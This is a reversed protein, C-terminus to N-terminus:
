SEGGRWVGVAMFLWFRLVVAALERADARALAEALERQEVGLPARGVDDRELVRPHSRIHTTHQQTTTTNHQQATTANHTQPPSLSRHNAAGGGRSGSNSMMVVILVCLLSLLFLDERQVAVREVLQETAEVRQARHPAELRQPAHRQELRQGVRRAALERARQPLQGDCLAAGDDGLDPHPNCHPAQSPLPTRGQACAGQM